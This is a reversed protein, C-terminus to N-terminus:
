KKAGIMGRQEESTLMNLAEPCNLSHGTGTDRQCHKCKHHKAVNTDDVKQADTM